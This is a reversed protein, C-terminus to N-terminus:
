TFLAIREEDTLAKLAALPDTPLPRPMSRSIPRAPMVLPAVGVPQTPAGITTAIQAIMGRAISAEISKTQAPVPSPEALLPISPIESASPLPSSVFLEEEIEVDSDGTASVFLEREIEAIADLEKTESAVAGHRAEQAEKSQVAEEPSKLVALEWAGSLIDDHPPESPEALAAVDPAASPEAPLDAPAEMATDILALAETVGLAAIPDEAATAISTGGEAESAVPLATLDAAGAQPQEFPSPGLSTVFPILTGHNLDSITSASTEEAEAQPIMLTAQQTDPADEDAAAGTSTTEKAFPALSITVAASPISGSCEPRNGLGQGFAPLSYIWSATVSRAESVNAAPPITVAAPDAIETPELVGDIEEEVLEAGSDDPTLQRSGQTQEGAAVAHAEGDDPSLASSMAHQAPPSPADYDVGFDWDPTDEAPAEERSDFIMAESSSSLLAAEDIREIFGTPLDGPAPADSRVQPNTEPAPVASDEAQNPQRDELSTVPHSPGPTTSEQSYASVDAHAPQAVAASSLPEDVAFEHQTHSVASVNTPAALEVRDSAVPASEGSALSSPHDPSELTSALGIDAPPSATSDEAKPLRLSPRPMELAFPEFGSEGVPETSARAIEDTDIAPPAPEIETPGGTTEVTGTKSPQPHTEGQDSQEDLSFPASPHYPPAPVSEAHLLEIVIPPLELEPAPADPDVGGAPAVISPEVDIQENTKLSTGLETITSPASEGVLPGQSEALAEPAQEDSHNETAPEVVPQEAGMESSNPPEPAADTLVGAGMSLPAGVALDEANPGQVAPGEPVSADSEILREANAASEPDPADAQAGPELMGAIRRELYALVATLKRVRDDAPDQLSSTAVISSALSEIEECTTSDLGRERMTWAVDQLREATEHIDPPGPPSKQEARAAQPHADPYRTGGADEARAQAIARAMELLEARMGPHAQQNRETRILHELREIAALVLRTDANRNRRAYEQLFWRGRASEMVTAFIADYDSEEAPLPSITSLAFPEEPM